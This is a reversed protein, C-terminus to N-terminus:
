IGPKFLAFQFAVDVDAEGNYLGTVTVSGGGGGSVSFAQSKNYLSQQWSVAFSNATISTIRYRFHGNRPSCVVYCPDKGLNHTVTYTGGSKSVSWGPPGFAFTGGANVEGNYVAPMLAGQYVLAGGIAMNGLIIATTAGLNNTVIDESNVETINGVDANINTTDIGTRDITVVVNGNNYAYFSDDPNIEVRDNSGSSQLLTGQVPNSGPEIGNSQGSGAGALGTAGGQSNAIDTSISSEVNNTDLGSDDKQLYRNLGLDSLSAMNITNPESHCSVQL